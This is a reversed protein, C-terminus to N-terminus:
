KTLQRLLPDLSSQGDTVALARATSAFILHIWLSTRM